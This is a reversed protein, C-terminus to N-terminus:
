SCRKRETVERGLDGGQCSVGGCGEVVVCVCGPPIGAQLRHNLSSRAVGGSYRGWGVVRGGHVGGDDGGCEEEGGGGEGEGCGDARDGFQGGGDFGGLGAGGDFEGGGCEAESLWEIEWGAEGEGACADAFGDDGMGVCPAGIVGGEGVGFGIVLFEVAGTVEEAALVIGSVDGDGLEGEGARGEVSGDEAHGVVVEM